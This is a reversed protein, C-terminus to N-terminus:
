ELGQLRDLADDLRFRLLLNDKKLQAIQAQAQQYKAWLKDYWSSQKRYEGEWNTDDYYRTM